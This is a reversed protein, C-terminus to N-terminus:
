IPEAKKAGPGQKTRLEPEKELEGELRTFLSLDSAAKGVPLCAIFGCKIQIKETLNV